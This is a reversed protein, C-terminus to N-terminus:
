VVRRRAAVQVKSDGVLAGFFDGTALAANRPVGAIGQGRDLGSEHAMAKSTAALEETAQAAREQAAAIQNLIAMEQQREVRAVTAYQEIKRGLDKRLESTFETQRRLFAKNSDAIGKAIGEYRRHAEALRSSRLVEIEAFLGTLAAIAAHCRTVEQTHERVRSELGVVERQHEQFLQELEREWQNRYDLKSAEAARYIRLRERRNEGLLYNFTGLLLEDLLRPVAIPVDHGHGCLGCHWSGTSERYTVRAAPDFGARGGETAGPADVAQDRQQDDTRGGIQLCSPCYFNFSSCDTASATMAHFRPLIERLAQQRSGTLTTLRAEIARVHEEYKRILGDVDDDRATESQFLSRIEHEGDAFAGVRLIPWLVPTSGDGRSGETMYNDVWDVIGVDISEARIRLLTALLQQLRSYLDSEYGHLQATAPTAEGIPTMPSTALVQPVANLEALLEEFRRLTLEPDEPYGVNIRTAEATGSLDVQITGETVKIAAVPLYVIGIGVVGPTRSSPRAYLAAVVSLVCLAIYAAGFLEPSRITGVGVVLLILAAGMVGTRWNRRAAFWDECASCFWRALQYTPATRDVAAM